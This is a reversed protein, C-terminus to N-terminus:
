PTPKSPVDYQTNFTARFGATWAKDIGGRYDVSQYTGVFAWTKSLHALTTLRLRDFRPTVGAPTKGFDLWKFDGQVEYRELFPVRAGFQLAYGEDTSDTGFVDTREYTAASFFQYNRNLTHVGLGLSTDRLQQKSTDFDAHNYEGTFYMWPAVPISVNFRGGDAEIKKTVPDTDDSENALYAFDLYGWAPRAAQAPVAALSLVLMLVKGFHKM